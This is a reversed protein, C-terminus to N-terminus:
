AIWSAAFCLAGGAATAAFDRLEVSHPPPLGAKIARQNLAWDQSEKLLGFAAALGLGCYGPPQGIQQGAAAGIIFLAAGYVVHNAKDVTLTPLPM